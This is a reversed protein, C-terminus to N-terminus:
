SGPRLINKIQEYKKVLKLSTEKFNTRIFYHITKLWKTKEKGLCKFYCYTKVSTNKDQIGTYHIMPHHLTMALSFIRPSSMKVKLLTPASSWFFKVKPIIKSVKELFQPTLGMETGLPHQLVAILISFLRYLLFNLFVSFSSNNLAHEHLSVNRM